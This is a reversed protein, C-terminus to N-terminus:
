DACINVEKLWTPNVVRQDASERILKINDFEWGEATRKKLVVSVTKEDSAATATINDWLMVPCKKLERLAKKAQLRFTSDDEKDSSQYMNLSVLNGQKTIFQESFTPVKYDPENLNSHVLYSAILTMLIILIYHTSSIVKVPSDLLSSHNTAVKNYLIAGQDAIVEILSCHNKGFYDKFNEVIQEIDSVSLKQQYDGLEEPFSLLEIPVVHGRHKALVSLVWFENNNLQWKTANSQNILEKHKDDFWCCGIQM